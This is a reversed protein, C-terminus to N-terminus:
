DGIFKLYLHPEGQCLSGLAQIQRIVSHHEHKHVMTELVGLEQLVVPMQLANFVTDGFPDIFRLAIFRTDTVGPLISSPFDIGEGVQCGKEDQVIVKIIAM